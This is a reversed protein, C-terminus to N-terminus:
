VSVFTAGSPRDDKVQAVLTGWPGEGQTVGSPWLPERGQGDDKHGHKAQVADESSLDGLM